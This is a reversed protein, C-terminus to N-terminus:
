GVLEVLADCLVGAPDDRRGILADAELNAALAHEVVQEAREGTRLRVAIIARAARHEPDIRRAVDAKRQAAGPHHRLGGIDFAALLEAVEGQRCHDSPFHMASASMMTM